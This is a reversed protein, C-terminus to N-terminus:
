AAVGRNEYNGEIVKAFNAPTILWELNCTFPKATRGCLFDSEAVYAFFGAWWDLTQRETKEKWRSRLKAARAPTWERVAPMMPLTAQYLEIIEQQPCPDSPLASSTHEQEEQNITIPKHNITLEVDTSCGNLVHEVGTSIQRSEASKKGANSRKEQKQHYEAIDADIRLHRWLNGDQVFYRNLVYSVEAEHERLGLLRAVDTSCGNFPREALFYEDIMRRYALDEILSLGKTHSSYDGINFQYYHM